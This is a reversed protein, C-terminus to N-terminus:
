DSANKKRYGAFGLAVYQLLSIVCLSVLSWIIAQMMWQPFVPWVLNAITFLGLAVAVFTCAKSILTPKGEYRGVTFWYVIAGAFILVDRLVVVAVLWAPLHGWYGLTVYATVMLVKDAVPDAISGVQSRWGFRRALLGDLSDTFGAVFLLALAVGYAQEAMYIVFPIALLIRLITLTNPLQHWKSIM